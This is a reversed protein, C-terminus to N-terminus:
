NARKLSPLHLFKFIYFAVGQDYNIQMVFRQRLENDNKEYKQHKSLSLIFLDIM